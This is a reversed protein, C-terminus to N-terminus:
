KSVNPKWICMCMLYQFLSVLHAPAYVLSTNPFSASSSPYLCIDDALSVSFSCGTLQSSLQTLTIDRSKTLVPTLLLSDKLFCPSTSGTSLDLIASLSNPSPQSTDRQSPLLSSAGSRSLRARRLFLAPNYVIYPSNPLPFHLQRGNAKPQKKRM